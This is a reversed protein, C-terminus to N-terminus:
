VFADFLRLRSDDQDEYLIGPRNASVQIIGSSMYQPRQAFYGTLGGLIALVLALLCVVKLRGRLGLLVQRLPNSSPTESEDGAETGGAVTAPITRSPLDVLDESPFAPQIM